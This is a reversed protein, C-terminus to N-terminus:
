TINKSGHNYRRGSHGSSCSGLSAGDCLCLNWLCCEPLGRFLIFNSVCSFDECGAWALTLQERVPILLLLLVALGVGFPVPDVFVFVNFSFLGLGCRERRRTGLLLM